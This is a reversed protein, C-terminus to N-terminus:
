PLLESPSIFEFEAFVADGMFLTTDWRGAGQDKPISASLEQASIRCLKPEPRLSWLYFSFPGGDVAADWEGRSIFFRAEDVISDSAKCEIRLRQPVGRDVVSLIDYGALNTEIAKWIPEAGTRATEFDITLREGLRGTAIDTESRDARADCALGDWWTVIAEATGSLLAAERFIQITNRPLYKLLEERGRPALSLWVPRKATIWHRFLIRLAEEQTETQGIVLGKASASFKGNSHLEILGCEQLIAFVFGGDAVSYRRFSEKYDQVSHTGDKLLRLYGAAAYLIGVSIPESALKM